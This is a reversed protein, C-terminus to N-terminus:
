RVSQGTGVPLNEMIKEPISVIVTQLLSPERLYFFIGRKRTTCKLGRIKWRPMDKMKLKKFLKM